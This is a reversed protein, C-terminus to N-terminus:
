KLWSGQMDELMFDSMEQSTMPMFKDFMERATTIIYEDVEDEPIGCEIAARKDIAIMQLHECMVPRIKKEYFKRDNM